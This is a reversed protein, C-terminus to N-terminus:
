SLFRQYVGHEPILNQPCGEHWAWQDPLPRSASARRTQAPLTLLRCRYLLAISHGRERREADIMEHVAAPTADAEVEAGLEHRAV